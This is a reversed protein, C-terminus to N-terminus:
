PRQIRRPPHDALLEAAARAGGLNGASPGITLAALAGVVAFGPEWRLRDDLIPWGNVHPAGFAARKALVPEVRLDPTSGTAVWVRDVPLEVGAVRVVAADGDDTAAIDGASCMQRVSADALADNLDPTMSGQRAREAMRRRECPDAVARFPVLHDDMLWGADVDLNAIRRPGRSILVVDAGARAAELALQGATQGGGLVAIRQGPAAHALDVENSHTITDGLEVGAPVNPRRPNGAWVIQRARLVAGDSLEACWVPQAATGVPRLEVISAPHVRRALGTRAALDRCFNAFVATTPRRLPGNLPDGNPACYHRMPTTRYRCAHLLAMSDPDPHHVGPSRLVDIRQQDFQEDWARMWCGAPDVVVVDDVATPRDCVWRALVTLAQPGAGVVVTDTEIM